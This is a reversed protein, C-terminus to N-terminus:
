SKTMHGAETRPDRTYRTALGSALLLEPCLQTADEREGGRRARRKALTPRLHGGARRALGLLVPLLICAQLTFQKM